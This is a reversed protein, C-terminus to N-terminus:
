NWSEDGGTLHVKERKVSANEHKNLLRVPTLTDDPEVVFIREMDPSYRLTVRQKAFRYDVEYETNDITIVSDASVRREIELLFFRDLQDDSLRRILEPESFFRDQPTKGGLASHATQNYITVYTQLSGRLQDLTQFDRMDLSAMWHDKMTRFWREIKAKQVPSYPQCYNVASGIRAILLEMQKNRYASGNDFNWVKPVGYKSVASKMVSLLNVFTDNFFVDIGTVFRSADDILAIIFVRHKKGDATKLYPGSSSDGCWVENIHPREYRRLDQNNSLKEQIVMRNIFRLVTSESIDHRRISGNDLLQRYIAAASLRPYNVKLYRIENELDKDIKRSVGCDSRSAPVLADFGEHRYALYWKQITSPAYFRLNGSPDPIGKASVERFYENMSAYDDMNGTILPAIAAYRMLAIAQKKDKEM